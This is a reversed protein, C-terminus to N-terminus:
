IRCIIIYLYLPNNLNKQYAVVVSIFHTNTLSETNDTVCLPEYCHQKMDIKECLSVSVCTKRM